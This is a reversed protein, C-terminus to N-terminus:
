LNARITKRTRCFRTSVLDVAVYISIGHHAKKLLRQPKKNKPSAEVRFSGMAAGSEDM